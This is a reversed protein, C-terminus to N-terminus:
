GPDRVTEPQQDPRLRLDLAAEAETAIANQAKSEVHGAELGRINLSPQAIAAALPQGGSETWALGLEQKIQPDVDPMQAVAQQEAVSLPRVDDYYGPILIPSNADRMSALLNSL